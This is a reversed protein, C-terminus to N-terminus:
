RRFWWRGGGGAGSGGNRGGGPAAVVDEGRLRERLGRPGSRYVRYPREEASPRATSRGRYVRYPPDESPARNRPEDPM